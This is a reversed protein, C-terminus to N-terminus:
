QALRESYAAVTRSECHHDVDTVGPQVPKRGFADYTVAALRLLRRKEEVDLQNVRGAEQLASVTVGAKRPHAPRELGEAAGGRAQASREAPVPLCV